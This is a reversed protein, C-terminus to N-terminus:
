SGIPHEGAGIESPYQQWSGVDGADGEAWSGGGRRLDESAFAKSEIMELM